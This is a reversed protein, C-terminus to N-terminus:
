LLADYADYVVCQERVRVNLPIGSIFAVLKNTSKVRIGVHLSKVFGPPMLAWRVFPAPYDFRFSADDDEVYHDTL